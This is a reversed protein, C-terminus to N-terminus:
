NDSVQFRGLKEYKKIASKYYDSLPIVLIRIVTYGNSSISYISAVMKCLDYYDEVILRDTVSETEIKFIKYVTVLKGLLLPTETLWDDSELICSNNTNLLEKNGITELMGRYESSLFYKDFSKPLNDYIHELLKETSVDCDIVVKNIRTNEDSQYAILKGRRYIVTLYSEPLRIKIDPCDEITVMWYLLHSPSLLLPMRSEVLELEGDWGIIRAVEFYFQDDILTCM